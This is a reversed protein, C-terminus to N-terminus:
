LSIPKVVCRYGTTGGKGPVAAASLQHNQRPLPVTLNMARAPAFISTEELDVIHANEDVGDCFVLTEAHCRSHVTQIM